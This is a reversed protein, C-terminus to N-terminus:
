AKSGTARAGSPPPNTADQAQDRLDSTEILHALTGPGNGPTVQKAIQASVAATWDNAKNLKDRGRANFMATLAVLAATVCEIVLDLTSM